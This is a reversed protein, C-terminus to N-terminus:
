RTACVAGVLELHSALFQAPLYRDRVREHAKRGMTDRMSPDRILTTVREGFSRLDAPAVLLGSEGDIIQDQIGGVGSGVVPRAKWMAETVTLGFGEAVSKQVVVSARRQLANVIVANEVQDEVPITLIHVRGRAGPELHGWTDQVTALVGADEPDDAVGNSGPGALVLHAGVDPPVHHVFGRMVGIPDKLRDWRSVQLVIPDSPVLRADQRAGVRRAVEVLPGGVLRVKTRGASREGMVGAGALVSDRDDPSLEANKPSSPDICPPIVRIRARDLGDWIYDDRSFVLGDAGLIRPRLLDWASRTVPGPADAGVHCVWIVHIGAEALPAVLGATQPDHLVAVDGRAAEELFARANDDLTREYTSIQEPGLPGGDGEAEHLRNHIRKTVEFFGAAGEVICWRVRIGGEVLYGLLSGLLEAVGGGESTSNIQWM